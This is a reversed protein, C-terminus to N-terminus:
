VLPQSHSQLHQNLGFEDSFSQNCVPCVHPQPKTHSQMHHHLNGKQTFSRSCLTCHFPREGTHTREHAVVNTRYDSRYTCYRCQFRGKPDLHLRPRRVLPIHWRARGLEALLRCTRTVVGVRRSYLGLM